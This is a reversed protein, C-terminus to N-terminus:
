ARVDTYDSKDWQYIYGDPAIPSKVKGNCRDMITQYSMYNAKAAARASRYVEVVDQTRWDYKAVAKRRSQHGTRRGLEARSIYELNGLSPDCKIGNKHWIAFGPPRPPMFADAVLHHVIHMHRKGNTDTLEVVLVGRKKYPTMQRICTKYVHFINGDTDVLYKGDYGKVPKRAMYM